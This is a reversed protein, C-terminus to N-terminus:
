ACFIRYIIWRHEILVQSHKRIVSAFKTFVGFSFVSKCFAVLIVSLLSDVTLFSVFSANSVCWANDDISSQLCCFRNRDVDEEDMEEVVEEVLEDDVSECDFFRDFFIFRQIRRLGHGCTFM